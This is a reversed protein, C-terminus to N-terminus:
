TYNIKTKKSDSDPYGNEVNGEPKQVLKNNSPSHNGDKELKRHKWKNGNSDRHQQDADVNL